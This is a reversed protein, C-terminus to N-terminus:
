VSCSLAYTKLAIKMFALLLRENKEKILEIIREENSTYQPFDLAFGEQELSKILKATIM